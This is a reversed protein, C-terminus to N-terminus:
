NGFWFFYVTVHLPEILVLPVSTVNNAAPLM